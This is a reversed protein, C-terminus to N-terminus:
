LAKQFYRALAMGVGGPGFVWLMLDISQEFGIVIYVDNTSIYCVAERYDHLSVLPPKTPQSTRWQQSRIVDGVCFAM